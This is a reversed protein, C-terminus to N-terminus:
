NDVWYSMDTFFPGKVKDAIGYELENIGIKLTLFRMGDAYPMTYSEYTGSVFSFALVFVVNGSKMFYIDRKYSSVVVRSKQDRLQTGFHGTRFDRTIDIKHLGIGPSFGIADFYFYFREAWSVMKVVWDKDAPLEVNMQMQTITFDRNDTKYQVDLFERPINLNSVVELKGAEKMEWLKPITFDRLSAPFESNPMNSIIIDSDQFKTYNLSNLEKVRNMITRINEPVDPTPGNYVLNINNVNHHINMSGPVNFNTVIQPRDSKALKGTTPNFVLYESFNLDYNGTRANKVGQLSAMLSELVPKGNSWAEQGHADQVRMRDFTTDASKDPLGTLYYFYGATNHTYNHAQTFTRTGTTTLDANAINKGSNELLEEIQEKDYVNGQESDTDIKAINDPVEGVGLAEKWTVKNEESLGSADANAKADVATTEAKNSLTDALGNIKDQPIQEDKHWYSDLWAWFHTQLPKLGTKFWNKLTNKDTAM